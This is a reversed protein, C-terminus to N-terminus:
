SSKEITWFIIFSDGINFILHFFGDSNFFLLGFKLELDHDLISGVRLGCPSQNQTEHDLHHLLKGAAVNSSYQIHGGKM